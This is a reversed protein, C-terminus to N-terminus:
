GKSVGVAKWLASRAADVEPGSFMSAAQTMWVNSPTTEQQVDMWVLIGNVAIGNKANSSLYGFVETLQNDTEGGESAAGHLNLSM